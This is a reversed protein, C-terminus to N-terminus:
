DVQSGSNRVPYLNQNYNQNCDSICLILFDFICLKSNRLVHKGLIYSLQKM